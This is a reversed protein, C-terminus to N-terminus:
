KAELLKQIPRRSLNQFHLTGRRDSELRRSTGQCLSGVWWNRRHCSDSTWPITGQAVKKAAYLDEGVFKGLPPLKENAVIENLCPSKSDFARILSSWQNWGRKITSHKRHGNSQLITNQSFPWGAQASLLLLMWCMGFWGSKNSGSAEQMIPLLLVSSSNVNNIQWSSKQGKHWM